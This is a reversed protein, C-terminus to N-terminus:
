SPEVVTHSTPVDEIKLTKMMRDTAEQVRDVGFKARLVYDATFGDLADESAHTPTGSTFNPDIREVRVVVGQNAQILKVENPFRIDSIVISTETGPDVGAVDEAMGEDTASGDFTHGEIAVADMRRLVQKVWVDPDIERFCETGVHQLVRRRTWGDPLKPDQEEKYTLENLRDREWGFFKACLDKLPGAMTLEVFGFSEVLHAAATSKGAGAKGILGILQM